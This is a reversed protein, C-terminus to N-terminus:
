SVSGSFGFTFSFLLQLTPVAHGEDLWEVGSEQFRTAM